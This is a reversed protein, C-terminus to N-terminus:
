QVDHILWLREGTQSGTRAQATSQNLDPYEARVVFMDLLAYGNETVGITACASADHKEEAKIAEWDAKLEPNKALEREMLDFKHQAEILGEYNGAKVAHEYEASPQCVTDSPAEVADRTTRVELDAFRASIDETPM